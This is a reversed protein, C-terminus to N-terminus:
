FDGRNHELQGCQGTGSIRAMCPRIQWSQNDGSNARAAIMFIFHFVNVQDPGLAIMFQKGTMGINNAAV